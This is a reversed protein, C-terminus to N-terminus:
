LPQVYIMLEVYPRHYPENTGKIVKQYVAFKSELYRFAATFAIIGRDGVKQKKCGLIDVTELM